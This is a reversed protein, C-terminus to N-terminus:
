STRDSHYDSYATSSEVVDSVVVEFIGGDTYRGGEEGLTWNTTDIVITSSGSTIQSGNAYLVISGDSDDYTGGMTDIVNASPTGGTLSNGDFSGFHYNSSFYGLEFPSGGGGVFSMDNTDLAYYTVFVSFQSSNGFQSDVPADHFDDTGDYEIMDKGTSQYNEQYTPGGSATADSLGGLEEPFPPVDGEFGGYSGAYWQYIPSQFMSVDPIASTVNVSGSGFGFANGSGSYYRGRATSGQGVGQGLASALITRGRSLSSQGTGIGQGLANMVTLANVALTATGFGNSLGSASLPLEVDIVAVGRGMGEGVATIYKADVFKPYPLLRGTITVNRITSSDSEEPVSVEEVSLFGDYQDFSFNNEKWERSSLTKVENRQEEVTKTQPHLSQVLTGEIEIELATRHGSLVLNKDKELLNHENTERANTVTVNQISAIPIGGINHTM